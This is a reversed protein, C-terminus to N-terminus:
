VSSFHTSYETGYIRFVILQVPRKLSHAAFIELVQDITRILAESVFISLSMGTELAAEIFKTIQLLDECFVFVPVGAEHSLLHSLWNRLRLCFYVLADAMQFVINLVRLPKDLILFKVDDIWILCAQNSM